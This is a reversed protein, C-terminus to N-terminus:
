DADAAGKAVRQADHVWTMQEIIQGLLTEINEAVAAMEEPQVAMQQATNADFRALLRACLYARELRVEDSDELMFGTIGLDHAASGDPIAPTYLM